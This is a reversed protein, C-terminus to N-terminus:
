RLPTTSPLPILTVTEPTATASDVSLGQRLLIRVPLTNTSIGERVNEVNVIAGVEEFKIVRIQETRGTLEVSVWEPECRWAPGTGSPQVLRVPVKEIRVTSKESIIQVNVLIESPEVRLRADGPPHLKLRTSFSQTRGDVDLPETQVQVKEPDLSTLLRRSGTVMATTPEFTLDVRGRPNGVLAPAVIPLQLTMPVDFRIKVDDPDIKNVRLGRDLGRISHSGLPISVVEVPTNKKQRPRVVCRINEVLQQHLESYSGRLTVQVTRPEVTEIVADNASADREVDVPVPITRLHSIDSRISFHVMFAIIFALSKWHGDRVFILKLVTYWNITQM